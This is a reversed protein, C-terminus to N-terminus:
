CEFDGEVLINRRLWDQTSKNVSHYSHGCLEMVSLSNGLPPFEFRKRYRREDVREWIVLEGGLGERWEDNLNFFAVCNYSADVDSHISLGGGRGKMTRLQPYAEPPRAFNRKGFLSALFGRFVKGYVLKIFADNDFPEFYIDTNIEGRAAYKARLSSPFTSIQGYFDPSWFDSLFAFHFPDTHAHESLRGDLYANVYKDSVCKAFHDDIIISKQENKIM